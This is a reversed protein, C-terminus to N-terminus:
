WCCTLPPLHPLRSAGPSKDARPKWISGIQEVWTMKRGACGDMSETEREAPGPTKVIEQGWKTSNFSPWSSLCCTIHQWFLYHCYFCSCSEDSPSHGWFLTLCSPQDVRKRQQLGKGVFSTGQAVLPPSSNGALNTAPVLKRFSIFESSSLGQNQKM